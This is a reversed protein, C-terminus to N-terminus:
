GIEWRRLKASMLGASDFFEECCLWTRLAWRLPDTREQSHDFSSSSIRSVADLLGLCVAKWRELAGVGLEAPVVAVRQM